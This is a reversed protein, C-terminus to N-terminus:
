PIEYIVDAPLSDELLAALTRRHDLDIPLDSSQYAEGAVDIDEADMLYILLPGDDLDLLYAKEQRMGERRFSELVEERRAVLEAMWQRLEDVKDSRVKRVVVGLM